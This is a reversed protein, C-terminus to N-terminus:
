QQVRAQTEAEAQTVMGLAVLDNFTVARDTKTSSQGVLLALADRVARLFLRTVGDQTHPVEPIAPIKSM